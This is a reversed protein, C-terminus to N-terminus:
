NRGADTNRHTARESSVYSSADNMVTETGMTHKKCQAVHCYEEDGPVRRSRVLNFVCYGPHGHAAVECRYGPGVARVPPFGHHFGSDPTQDGDLSFGRAWAIVDRPEESPTRDRAM